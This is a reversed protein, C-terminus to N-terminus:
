EEEKGMRSLFVRARRCGVLIRDNGRKSLYVVLIEGERGDWEMFYKIEDRM